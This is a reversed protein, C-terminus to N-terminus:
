GKTGRGIQKSYRRRIESFLGQMAPERYDPYTWQFAEYEKSRASYRLTVEAYVGDKLYVRHSYNKCSALVVKDLALYGPDINVQRRGDATLFEDEISNTLLKIDALEDADILKEYSAIRRVLARGMEKEYYDTHDFPLLPSMYDITGFRESLRDMAAEILEPNGSLISAFLKVKEPKKPRM